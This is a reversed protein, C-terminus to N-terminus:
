SLLPVTINQRIRYAIRNSSLINSYIFFAVKL